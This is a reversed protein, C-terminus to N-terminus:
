NAFYDRIPVGTRGPWCSPAGLAEECDPVREYEALVTLSM